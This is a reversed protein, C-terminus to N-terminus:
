KVGSVKLGIVKIEGLYPYDIIGKENVLYTVLEMSSENSANTTQYSNLNLFAVDMPNDSIVQIFLQDNERIKYADPIPGHEYIKGTEIDNIYVIDQLPTSCSSIFVTVAIFFIINRLSLRNM